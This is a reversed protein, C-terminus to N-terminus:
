SPKWDSDDGFDAEDDLDDDDDGWPLPPHQVSNQPSSFSDRTTAKSEAPSVFRAPGRAADGESSDACHPSLGIWSFVVM